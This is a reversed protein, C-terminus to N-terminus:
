RAVVLQVPVSVVTGQRCASAAVWERANRTCRANEAPSALQMVVVLAMEVSRPVWLLARSVAWHANALLKVQM